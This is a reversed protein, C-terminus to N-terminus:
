VDEGGKEGAPTGEPAPDEPDEAPTKPDAAPEEPKVVDDPVQESTVVNDPTKKEPKDNAHQNNFLDFINEKHM